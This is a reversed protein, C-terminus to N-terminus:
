FWEDSSDGEPNISGSSQKFRGATTLKKETAVKQKKRLKM